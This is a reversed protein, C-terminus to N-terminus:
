RNQKGRRWWFSMLHRWLLLREAGGGAPPPRSSRFVGQSMHTKNYVLPNHFVGYHNEPM